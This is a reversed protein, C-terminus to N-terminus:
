WFPRIFVEFSKEILNCLCWRLCCQGAYLLVNERCMKTPTVIFSLILRSPISAAILHFSDLLLPQLWSTLSSVTLSIFLSIFLSVFFLLFADFCFLWAFTKKEKGCEQANRPFDHSPFKWRNFYCSHILCSVWALIFYSNGTKEADM